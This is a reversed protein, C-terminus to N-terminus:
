VSRKNVPQFDKASKPRQVLFGMIQVQKLNDFAVLRVYAEPFARTCSVIERLVQMPDRCGFMPLKWMTWYRNDHYLSSVPGFRVCSADSVYAQEPSAFELSPVWGNAVIYDVQAAIQEDTLPPLYSFTEFMWVEEEEVEEAEEESGAGEGGRGPAGGELAASGGPSGDHQASAAGGLPAASAGGGSLGAAAPGGGGGSPSDHKASTADYPMSAADYPMSTADYPMSATSRQAGGDHSRSPPSHRGEAAAAGGCSHIFDRELARGAECGLALLREVVEVRGTAAAAHLPLRGAGDPRNLLEALLPGAAGLLGCSLLDAITLPPAGGATSAALAAAAAEAAAASPLAPRPQAPWPAPLGAATGGSTTAATSSSAATANRKTAAGGPLTRLPAAGQAGAFAPDLDLVFAAAPAESAGAPAALVWAGTAARAGAEGGAGEAAQTGYLSAAAGAAGDSALASGTGVGPRGQAPRSLDLVPLTRGLPSPVAAGGGAAGGGASGAAAAPRPTAGSCPPAEAMALRAELGQHLLFMLDESGGGGGQVGGGGGGGGGGKGGGGAPKGPEFEALAAAAGGARLAAEGGVASGGSSSGGGSSREGEDDAREGEEPVLTSSTGDTGGGGGSGGSGGSSGRASRRPRGGRVPQAAGGGGFRPAPAPAPSAGDGVAGAAEGAVDAAAAVAAAAGPRLSDLAAPAGLTTAVSLQSGAVSGPSDIPHPQQPAPGPLPLLRPVSTGQGEGGGAAGARMALHQQRQHQKQLLTPAALRDLAEARPAPAAAAAAAAAAAQSPLAARSAIAWWILAAVEGPCHSRWDAGFTHELTPIWNVRVYEEWPD